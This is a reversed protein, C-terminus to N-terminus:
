RQKGAPEQGAERRDTREELQQRLEQVDRLTAALLSHLRELTAASAIVNQLPRDAAAIRQQMDQIADTMAATGKQGTAIQRSFEEAATSMEQLQRNLRTEAQQRAATGSSAMQGLARITDDLQQQMATRAATM